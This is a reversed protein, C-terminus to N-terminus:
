GPKAISFLFQWAKSAYAGVRFGDAAMAVLFKAVDSAKADAVRGLGIRNIMFADPGVPDAGLGTAQMIAGKIPGGYIQRVEEASRPAGVSLLPLM